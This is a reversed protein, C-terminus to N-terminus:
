NYCPATFQKSTFRTYGKSPTTEIAKYTHTEKFLFIYSRYCYLMAKGAFASVTNQLGPTKM